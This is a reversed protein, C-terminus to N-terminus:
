LVYSNALASVKEALHDIKYQDDDDRDLCEFVRDTLRHHKDALKFDEQLALDFHQAAFDLCANVISEKFKDKIEERIEESKKSEQCRQLLYALECDDNESTLLNIMKDHTESSINAKDYLECFYIEANSM